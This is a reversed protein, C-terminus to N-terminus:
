DFKVNKSVDEWEKMDELLQISHARVTEVADEGLQLRLPMNESQLAQDIAFPLKNPDSGVGQEAANKVFERVGGVSDHYEEMVPTHKFASGAFGTHFAGPEVILVRVGFAAMEGALAESIGELAFKSASYPGFGPMSFQGVSSSINVITGSKQKRFQPLFSQIVQVAGFFNTEFQARLDELSTEEIAGVMGYGANNFLVDVRGFKKITLNLASEIQEKQNVDMQIAEVQNPALEKISKLIEIRRASIIVQHGQQIGYEALAKGFGSSAGTIFWVKKEM